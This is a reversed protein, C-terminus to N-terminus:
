AAQAATGVESQIRALNEPISDIVHHLVRMAGDATADKVDVAIIPGRTSEEMTVEVVAKPAFQELDSKAPESSYYAILVRAPLELGGLNLLANGKPGTTLASPLLMVLGRTTYQSPALAATAWGSCAALLLGVLVLYWRRRLPGLVDSLAM